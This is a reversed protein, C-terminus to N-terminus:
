KRSINRRGKTSTNQLRLRRCHTRGCGINIVLLVIILMYTCPYTLESSTYNVKISPDAGHKLLLNVVESHLDLAEKIIKTSNDNAEMIYDKYKDLLTEVQNKGNYAFMLATHGDVNQANVDGGKELLLVIADKHGRVAAAMLASTGDKDKANINLKGTALLSKLVELHGESAAAILPTIGEVNVSNVDADKQILADVITALGQYAAQTLPSVGDEDAYSVNAGKEILKLSYDINLAQIADMLLNHPKGKDDNFACNPDAGNSVLYMSVNYFSGKAASCLATLNDEDGVNVNAGAEVLLKVTGLHGAQAAVILATVGDKHPEVDPKGEELAKKVQDIYEPTAKVVVNVDAGAKLLIETTENHGNGAAFMIATGGSHAIQNVKVGKKLLIRHLFTRSARHVSLISM